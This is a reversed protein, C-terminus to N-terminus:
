AKGIAAQLWKQAHLADSFTFCYSALYGLFCLSLRVHQICFPKVIM